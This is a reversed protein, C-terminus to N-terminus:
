FPSEPKMYVFGLVSVPKKCVEIQRESSTEVQHRKKNEVPSKSLRKEQMNRTFKKFNEELKQYKSQYNQDKVENTRKYKNIPATSNISQFM